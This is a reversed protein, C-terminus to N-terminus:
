LLFNVPFFSYFFWGDENTYVQRRVVTKAMVVGRGGLGLLWLHMGRCRSRIPRVAVRVLRSAAARSVMEGKNTADMRLSRKKLRAHLRGAHTLTDAEERQSAPLPTWVSCAAAIPLKQVPLPPSHAYDNMRPHSVRFKPSPPHSIPVPHPPNLVSRLALNTLTRSRTLCCTM